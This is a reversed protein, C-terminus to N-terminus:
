TKKAGGHGRTNPEGKGVIPLEVHHGGGGSVLAAFVVGASAAAFGNAQAVAVDVLGPMETVLRLYPSQALMTVVPVFRVGVALGLGDQLLLAPYLHRWDERAPRFPILAGDLGQAVGAHYFGGVHVEFARHVFIRRTPQIKLPRLLGEDGLRAPHIEHAPGIDDEGIRVVLRDQEDFDVDGVFHAM